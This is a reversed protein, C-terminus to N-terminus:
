YRGSSRHLPAPHPDGQDPRKRQQPWGKEARRGHCRAIFCQRDTTRKGTRASAHRKGNHTGEPSAHKYAKKQTDKREADKPQQVIRMMERHRIKHKADSLIVLHTPFFGRKSSHRMRTQRTRSQKQFFVNSKRLDVQLFYFNIIFYVKYFSRAATGM